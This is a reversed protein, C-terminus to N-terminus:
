HQRPDYGVLINMIILVLISIICGLQVRYILVVNILVQGGGGGGGM